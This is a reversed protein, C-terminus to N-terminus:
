ARTLRWKVDVTKGSGDGANCAVSGAVEVRGDSDTKGAYSNIYFQVDNTGFDFGEKDKGSGVFIVKFACSGSTALTAEGDGQSVAWYGSSSVTSPINKCDSAKPSPSSTTYVPSAVEGCYDNTGGPHFDARKLILFPNGASPAATALGLLAALTSLITFQM